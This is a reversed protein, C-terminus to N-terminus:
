SELWIASSADSPMVLGGRPSLSVSGVAPGDPLCSRKFQQMIFRRTFTRLCKAIVDSEFVCDFAHNAMFEIKEPSFGFRVTYYLFFDHLEYPGLIDETKQAIGGVKDAPLLEPSVPTDIVDVLASALRADPCNDAYWRVIRRILTKPLSANVGYMSMHDGNYTAWGLALESMDGTGVVLGGTQNAIDMLIQTRERAQANEYTIDHMDPDHGIDAFHGLVADAISICRCSAGLQEILIEANSRTRATTGFGPMTVAILDQPQRGCLELAKHAVLLAHTSDLGGSAGIVATKAHTHSIRKALGRCQLEFVLKCRRACEAEDEPIFPTPSIHRTLPLSMKNKDRLWDCAVRVIGSNEANDTNGGFRLREACIRGIDLEVACCNDTFPESEALMKGNECIFCHGGYVYDTTSEGCGADAFIYGASIRESSSLAMMRRREASGVLEPLASPCLIIRAGAAALAPTKSEASFLETSFEVAASMGSMHASEFVQMAGFPIPCGLSDISIERIEATGPSFQRSEAHTLVTKPVLGCVKGCCCVAACNYLRGSVEVPLGVTFLVDESGTEKLIYILAKVAADRLRENRFLDGCTSGTLCLEPLVALRVGDAACRKVAAIIAEANANVDAVVVSPSLAASKIFSSFM